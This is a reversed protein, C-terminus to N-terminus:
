SAAQGATEQWLTLGLIFFALALAGCVVTLLIQSWRRKTVLSSRGSVFAGAATVLFGFETIFLTTLLPFGREAPDRFVGSSILVMALTLGLGASIWPFNAKM